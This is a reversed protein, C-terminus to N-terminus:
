ETLLKQIAELAVGPPVPGTDRGWNWHHLQQNYFYGQDLFVQLRLYYTQGTFVNDKYGLDYDLRLYNGDEDGGVFQCTQYTATPHALAMIDPGNRHINRELDKGFANLGVGFLVCVAVAGAALLLVLFVCGFSGCGCGKKAPAQVYVIQPPPTGAPFSPPKAM